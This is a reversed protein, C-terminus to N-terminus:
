VIDSMSVQTDPEAFLALEPAPFISVYVWERERERATERKRERARESEQVRECM